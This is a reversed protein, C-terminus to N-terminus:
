QNRCALEDMKKNMTDHLVKELHDLGVDLWQIPVDVLRGAEEAATTFDGSCPTRLCLMYSRAGKFMERILELNNGFTIRTIYEYRLAWDELLFFAGKALEEMFLEHGLLIDVCNQGATRISRGTHLIEEMLPHCTGYFVMTERHQYRELATTLKDSLKEFDVHLASDFFHTDLPWNNKDILYHIEKRLIGCGLLLLKDDM